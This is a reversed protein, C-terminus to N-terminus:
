ATSFIIPQRLGPPNDPGARILGLQNVRGADGGGHLQPKTPVDLGQLTSACPTSVATAGSLM